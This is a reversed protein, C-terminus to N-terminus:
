ITTVVGSRTMGGGRSRAFRGVRLTHYYRGGHTWWALVDGPEICLIHPKPPRVLRVRLTEGAELWACRLVQERLVCEFGASVRHWARRRPYHSTAM